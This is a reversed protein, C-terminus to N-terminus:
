GMISSVGLTMTMLCLIQLCGCLISTLWNCIFCAQFFTRMLCSFGISNDKLGRKDNSFVHGKSDMLSFLNAASFSSKFDYSQPLSGCLAGQTKRVLLGKAHTMVQMYEFVVGFQSKM